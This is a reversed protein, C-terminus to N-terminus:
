KSFFVGPNVLTGTGKLGLRLLFEFCWRLGREGWGGGGERKGNEKRDGSEGGRAKETERERAEKGAGTRGKGRGEGRWRGKGSGRGTGKWLLLHFRGTGRGLLLRLRANVGATMSLPLLM